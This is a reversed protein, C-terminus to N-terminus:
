KFGDDGDDSDDADVGHPAFAEKASKKGGFSKGDALKQVHDLIFHVGCKGMYEWVRCFVQARAFCGPYFDGVETIPDCSPYDVVSPRSDENTTAKIVWHGKYGEKDAYKPLDGDIVPSQLDAPWNSKDPGYKEIKAHKIALKVTSLDDNKDFLMTISFKAPDNPKVSHAKFLHPYSVRFRPTLIRCSTETKESKAM